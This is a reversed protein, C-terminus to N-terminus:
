PFAFVGWHISPDLFRVGIALSTLGVLAYLVRSMSDMRELIYLHFATHDAPDPHPRTM